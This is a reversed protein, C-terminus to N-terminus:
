VNDEPSSADPHTTAAESQAATLVRAVEGSFYFRELEHRVMTELMKKRKLVKLVHPGFRQADALMMERDIGVEQLLEFLNTEGYKDFFADIGADILAGYFETRRLSHWYEYLIVFFEEVDLASITNRFSATKRLRLQQWLDLAADRLAGDAISDLLFTESERLIGGLSENVFARLYEELSLELSPATRDLLAHGARLLAKAGPIRSTLNHRNIWGRLGQMLIDTALSAYMPNNVAERIVSERLGKLEIIKEIIEQAHHDPMLDALTTREHVEHAHAARGVDGALEPVAVSFELECAYRRATEKIMDRTVTENLRLHRANELMMDLRSAMFTQLRKGSLDNIVFAVHADLLANVVTDTM